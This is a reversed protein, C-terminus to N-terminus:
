QDPGLKILGIRDPGTRDQNQWRGLFVESADVKELYDVM